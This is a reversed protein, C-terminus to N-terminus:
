NVIRWVWVAYGTWANLVAPALVRCAIAWVWPLVMVVVAVKVMTTLVHM